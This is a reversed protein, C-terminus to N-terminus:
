RQYLFRWLECKEPSSSSYAFSVSLSLTAEEFWFVMSTFTGREATPTIIPFDPAFILFISFSLPARTIIFSSSSPLSFPSLITSIWPSRSFVFRASINTFFIIASCGTMRVSSTKMGWRAQPLIIPLPPCVIRFMLEMEPSSMEQWQQRQCYDIVFTLPEGKTSIDKLGKKVDWSRELYIKGTCCWYM